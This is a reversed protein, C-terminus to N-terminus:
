WNVPVLDPGLLEHVDAAGPDQVHVFHASYWVVVDRRSVDEHNIWNSIRARYPPGTAFTGHDVQGPRRRLVWFDGDGFPADPVNKAVGDHDGPRIEYAAGSPPHAVRWKRERAYNRPRHTEKHLVHWHNGGDLPPDNYERVVNNGATRVDFDFRWYCHHYHANCVCSSRVGSFGFRPKITGDAHFRWSSVYRYWGAETESVLLVEDGDVYVAVGAFGGQDSGSELITKPESTCLRFGPVPSEGPAKFKSEENLWDLYPGCRNQAYKVNLIPVHAQRLVLEGRYRVNSLDIGSGNTGSSGAPRRAKFRWLVTNGRSITIWAAGPRSVVTGQNAPPVACGAHRLGTVEAEHVEGRVVDVAVTRFPLEPDPPVLQVGIARRKKRGVTVPLVPPMHGIPTYGQESMLRAWEGDKRLWQLALEYEEGSPLPQQDLARVQVARGLRATPTVSGTLEYAKEHTYDYVTARFGSETDPSASKSESELPQCSLLRHEGNGLVRALETHELVQARLAEVSERSRGAPEIKVRLAMACGRVDGTRGRLSAVAPAPVARYGCQVVVIM